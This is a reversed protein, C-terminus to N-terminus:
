VCLCSRESNNTSNYSILILNSLTFYPIKSMWQTTVSCLTLQIKEFEYLLSTTKKKNKKLLLWQYSEIQPWRYYGFKLM